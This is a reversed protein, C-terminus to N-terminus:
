IQIMHHWITLYCVFDVFLPIFAFMPRLFCFVWAFQKTRYDEQRFAVGSELPVLCTWKKFSSFCDSSAFSFCATLVMYVLMHTVKSMTKVVGCDFLEARCKFFIGEISCLMFDRIAVIVHFLSSFPVHVIRVHRLSRTPGGIITMLHGKWGGSAGCPKLNHIWRAYISQRERKWGDGRPFSCLSAELFRRFDLILVVSCLDM